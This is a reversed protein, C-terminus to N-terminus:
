ILNELYRQLILAASVNDVRGKDKWGIMKEAEWSTLTEDVLVVKLGLKQTLLGAFRKVEKGVKGPSIGIVLREIEEAKCIKAIELAAMESSQNLLFSRTEIISGVAVALGIRKFGYDIGLLRTKNDYFPETM